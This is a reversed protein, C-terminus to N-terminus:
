AAAAECHRLSLECRESRTINKTTKPEALKKGEALVKVEAAERKTPGIM